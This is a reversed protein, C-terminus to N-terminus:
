KGRKRKSNPKEFQRMNSLMKYVSVGAIADMPITFCIGKAIPSIAFRAALEKSFGEFASKKIISFVVDKKLSSNGLIAYFNNPATGKGRSLFCFNCEYKNALAIIADGQGKGVITVALLLPSISHTKDYPTFTPQEEM